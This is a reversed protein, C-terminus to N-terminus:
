DKLIAEKKAVSIFAKFLDISSGKISFHHFKGSYNRVSIHFSDNSNSSTLANLNEKKTLTISASKCNFKSEIFKVVSTTTDSAKNLVVGNGKDVCGLGHFQIIPLLEGNSKLFLLDIYSGKTKGHIKLVSQKLVSSGKFLKNADVQANLTLSILATGLIILKKKM